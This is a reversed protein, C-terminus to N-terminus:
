FDFESKFVFSISRRRSLLPFEPCIGVALRVDFEYKRCEKELMFFEVFGVLGFSSVM